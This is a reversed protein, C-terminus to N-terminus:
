LVARRTEYYNGNVEISTPSHFYAEGEIMYKQYRETQALTYSLFHERLERVHALLQRKDIRTDGSIGFVRMRKRQHHYQAGQIFAKSPMCGARVCTTGYVGNSIIIFNETSKRLESAAALAATGSGIIVADVSQRPSVKM